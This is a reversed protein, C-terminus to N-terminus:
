KQSLDAGNLTLGTIEWNEFTAVFTHSKSPKIDSPIVFLKRSLPASGDAKGLLVPIERTDPNINVSIQFIPVNVIMSAIVKSKSLVNPKLVTTFSGEGVNQDDPIYIEAYEIEPSGEPQRHRIEAM